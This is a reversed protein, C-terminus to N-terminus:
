FEKYVDEEYISEVYQKHRAEEKALMEFLEKAPGPDVLAAMQSYFAGTAEERKIAVALVDQLSSQETIPKAELPGGIELDKVNARRGVSVTWDLNGALMGELKAKHKKEEGALDALGARAGPDKVRRSASTYLKYSDEEFKIAREVIEKVEKAAM